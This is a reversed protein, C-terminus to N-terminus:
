LKLVTQLTQTKGLEVAVGFGGRATPMPSMSSWSSGTNQAQIPSLEFVAFLTLAILMVTLIPSLKKISTGEALM